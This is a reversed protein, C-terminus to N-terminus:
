NALGDYLEIHDLQYVGNEIFQPVVMVTQYIGDLANGSIRNGIGATVNHIRSPSLFFITGGSFGLIDDTIRSTVTITQPGSSIDVSTPTFAFDVLSPPTIDQVQAIVNTYIVLSLCLFIGLWVPTTSMNKNMKGRRIRMWVNNLLLASSVALEHGPAPWRRGDFVGAKRAKSVSQTAKDLTSFSFGGLPAYVGQLSLNTGKPIKEENNEGSYPGSVVSWEILPSLFDL